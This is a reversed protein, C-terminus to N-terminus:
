RGSGAVPCRRQGAGDAQDASRWAPQERRDTEPLTAADALDLGACFGRGAGTLVLVRVGDDAGIDAALQGLEGFMRFTLANLRDPRNLTAVAIGARPCDVLLTDYTAM